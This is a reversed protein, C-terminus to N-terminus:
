LTGVTSIDRWVLGRLKLPAEKIDTLLAWPLAVLFTLAMECDIVAGVGGGHGLGIGCPLSRVHTCLWTILNKKEM